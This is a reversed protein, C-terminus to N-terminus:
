LLVRAQFSLSKSYYRRQKNYLENANTLNIGDVKVSNYTGSPATQLAQGVADALIVSISYDRSICECTFDVIYLPATDVRNLRKRNVANVADFEYLVGIDPDGQEKMPAPQIKAATMGTVSLLASNNSLINFVAKGIKLGETASM